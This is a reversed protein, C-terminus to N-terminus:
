IVSGLDLIMCKVSGGGKEFFESVDIEIPTVGKEKILDKLKQSVGLPMFLFQEDDTELFFSNAACRFADESSLPILHDRFSDRLLGQSKPTLAPLYVMLFSRNPGFSCCATDGHYFRENILELSLIIKLHALGSLIELM